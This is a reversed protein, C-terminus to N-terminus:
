CSDGESLLKPLLSSKFDDDKEDKRSKLAVFAGGILFIIVLILSCVFM